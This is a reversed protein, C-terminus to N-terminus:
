TTFFPDFIKDLVAPEMGSGTDTLSLVVHPGPKLERLAKAAAQELVQNELRIAIKGGNPMADRATLCLNIFVQKLQTSDGRIRWTEQPADLKLEVNRPFTQAVFGV